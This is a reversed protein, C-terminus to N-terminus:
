RSRERHRLHLTSMRRVFRHVSGLDPFELEVAVGGEEIAIRPAREGGEDIRIEPDQFTATARLTGVELCPALGLHPTM